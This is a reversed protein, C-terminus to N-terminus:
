SIIMHAPMSSHVQWATTAVLPRAAAEELSFKSPMSTLAVEPV